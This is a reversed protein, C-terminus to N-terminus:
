LSKTFLKTSTILQYHAPKDHYEFQVCPLFGLGCQFSCVPIAVLELVRRMAPTVAFGPLAVSSIGASRSTASGVRACGPQM